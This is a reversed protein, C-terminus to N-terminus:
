RGEEQAILVDTRGGSQPVRELDLVERECRTVQPANDPDVYVWRYGVPCIAERSLAACGTLAVTLALIMWYRRGRMFWELAGAFPM